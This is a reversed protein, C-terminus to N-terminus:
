ELTIANVTVKHRVSARVSPRVAIIVIGRGALGPTFVIISTSLHQCSLPQYIEHHNYRLLLLLALSLYKLPRPSLNVLGLM